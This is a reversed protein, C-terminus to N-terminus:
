AVSAVVRIVVQVLAAPQSAPESLILLLDSTESKARREESKAKQRQQSENALWGAQKSAASRSTREGLNSPASNVCLTWRQLRIRSLRSIQPRASNRAVRTSGLQCLQRAAAPQPNM